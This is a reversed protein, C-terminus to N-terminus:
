EPIDLYPDQGTDFFVRRRQKDHEMLIMRDVLYRRELRQQARQFWRWAGASVTTGRRFRHQLRQYRKPGLGLLLVEDDLSVFTRCSGPDGQRAGRGIMQRDIRQAEHIETLIV